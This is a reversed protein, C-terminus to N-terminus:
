KPRLEGCIACALFEAEQGAHTFRRVPTPAPHTSAPPAPLATKLHPTPPPRQLTSPPHAYKEGFFGEGGGRGEV